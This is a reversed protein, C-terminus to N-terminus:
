NVESNSQNQNSFLKEIKQEEQNISQQNQNSSNQQYLNDEQEISKSELLYLM